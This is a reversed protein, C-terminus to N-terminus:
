YEHSMLTRTPRHPTSTSTSRGPFASGPCSRPRRARHHALAATATGASILAPPSSGGREGDEGLSRRRRSPASFGSGRHGGHRAASDLARKQGPQLFATAATEREADAEPRPGVLNQLKGEGPDTGCDAARQRRVFDIDVCHMFIDAPIEQETDVGQRFAGTAAAKEGAVHGGPARTNASRGASQASWKNSGSSSHTFPSRARAFYSASKPSGPRAVQARSSGPSAGRLSQAAAAIEDIERRETIAHRLLLQLFSSDKQGATNSAGARRRLRAIPNM